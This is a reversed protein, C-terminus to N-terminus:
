NKTNDNKITKHNLFIVEENASIKDPWHLGEKTVYVQHKIKIISNIDSVTYVTEPRFKVRNFTDGPQLKGATTLTLTQM